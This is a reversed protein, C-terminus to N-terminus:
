DNDKKFTSDVIESYEGNIQDMHIILPKPPDLTLNSIKYVVMDYKYTQGGWLKSNNGFIISEEQKKSWMINLIETNRFNLRRELLWIQDM